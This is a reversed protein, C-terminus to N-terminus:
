KKFEVIWKNTSYNTRTKKGKTLKGWPSVPHRGAATKGEGGGHPHDIPNMAVGRVTPRIGLWRSRGAKGLNVEKININSVSGITAKCNQSFLRKEGSPLRVVCTNNELKSLLQAFCGASRVIKGGTGPFIEINYIMFGLPIQSLSFTNGVKLDYINGRNVLTGVKLGKPMLMYSLTKDSNHILAIFSSRVPDYEIRVVLFYAANNQTFSRYKQKHGGGIHRVTIRGTNNRGGSKRLGNTFLKCPKGKWIFFKSIQTLHRQSPTTPKYTTLAM